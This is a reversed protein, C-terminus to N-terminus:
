LIKVTDDLRRFVDHWPRSSTCDKAPDGTPLLCVPRVGQPLGFARIVKKPDFPLGRTDEARIM